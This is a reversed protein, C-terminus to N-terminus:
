LAAEDQELIDVGLLWVTNIEQGRYPHSAKSTVRIGYREFATHHTDGNFPKPRKGEVQCYEKYRKMFDERPMRHDPGFSCISADALLHELSNPSRLEAKLAALEAQQQGGAAKLM